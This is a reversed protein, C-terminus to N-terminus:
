DLKRKRYFYIAVSLCVLFLGIYIIRDLSESGTSPLTGGSSSGGTSSGTSSGSGTGTSTRSSRSSGNSTDDAGSGQTNPLGGQEDDSIKLTNILDYGDITREYGEVTAEDIKYVYAKGNADKIPLNEFKYRWNTARGVVKEAIKEDNQFLYVTITNPRLRAVDDNDEWTKQGSINKTILTNKVDMGTETPRYNPIVRNGSEDRLVEKVSYTYAKGSADYEILDKFTYRWNKEATTEAFVNNGDTDEYVKGNQYLQVKISEPRSQYLNEQDDWSKQGSVEITNLSNTILATSNDDFYEVNDTYNKLNDTMVEQVTYEYAKGDKDFELLGNFETAWGNAENLESIVEKGDADKYVEKDQYLQVKISEPRTQYANSQDDWEKTVVKKITQLTNTIVATTTNDEPDDVKNTYNKLNDTMVEEVTYKYAEGNADFEALETFKATWNNEENLEVIGTKGNPYTYDFGNQKLQVKISEPRVALKNSQDDWEKTVEKEILQLENKIAMGNEFSQYNKLYDTQIEKVSYNYAKGDPDVEPLGEFRYKWEGKEDATVLQTVEKGDPDEFAKDNQYLQVEIQTPRVQYSNDSDEWTKMGEVSTLRYTNTVTLHQANATYDPQVNTEEVTYTYLKGEKDKEPLNYFTYSWDNKAEELTIQYDEGQRNRIMEGNQLLQLTVDKRLDSCYGQDQWVKNVTIDTVSLTNTIQLSGDEVIYDPSLIDNPNIAIERVFYNMLVGNKNRAPLGTINLTWTGTDNVPQTIVFQGLGNDNLDTTVFPAANAAETGEAYAYLQFRIANPRTFFNDEQDDWTKHVEIEVKNVSNTLIGENEAVFDKDTLYVEEGESYHLNEKVGYIAENGDPTVTPLDTFRYDWRSATTNGTIEQTTKVTDAADVFVEKFPKFQGDAMKIMLELELYEPRLGYFNNTDNWHKTGTIEKTLLRNTLEKQDNKGEYGAVQTERIAYDITKGKADYRPLDSFTYRYQDANAPDKEMTATVAQGNKLVVQYEDQSDLRSVLTVVLNDPRIGYKNGNDEWIKTATFDRVVLTNKLNMSAQDNEQVVESTYNDSFAVEKVTYVYDNGNEDAKPLNTFQYTWQNKNEPNENSSTVDIPKGYEENNQLLQVKIPQRTAYQNEQDDWTKTGELDVTILTNKLNFTYHPFGDEVTLVKDISSDYGASGVFEETVTYEYKNGQVDTYPLDTRRAQWGNEATLEITEKIEAEAADATKGELTLILKAPLKINDTGIWEKEFYMNTKVRNTMQITPIVYDEDAPEETTNGLAIRGSEFVTFVQKGDVIYEQNAKTAVEEIQYQGPSLAGITLNGNADTLYTKEIEKSGLNILRFEINELNKSSLEKEDTLMQGTKQLKITGTVPFNSINAVLDGDDNVTVAGAVQEWGTIQDQEVVRYSYENGDVDKKPLNKFEYKFENGATAYVTDVPSYDQDNQTKRQLEITVGPYSVANETEWIKQGTLNITEGPFNKVALYTNGSDDERLEVGKSAADAEDGLIITGSSDIKIQIATAPTGFRSVTNSPSRSEYLWYTGRPILRVQAKGQDEGDGETIAQRIALPSRNADLLKFTAGNLAEGTEADLKRLSVNFNRASGTVWSGNGEVGTNSDGPATTTATGEIKITNKVKTNDGYGVVNVRYNIILPETIKLDEKFTITFGDLNSPSTDYELFYDVNRILERETDAVWNDDVQQEKAYYIKLSNTVLQTVQVGEEVDLTDTIKTNEYTLRNGNLVVSYDVHAVDTSSAAYGVGGKRNPTAAWSFSVKADNDDKIIKGDNGFTYETTATNLYYPQIEGTLETTIKMRVPHDITLQHDKNLTYVLEGDQFTLKGNEKFQETMDGNVEKSTDVVKRGSTDYKLAQFVVHSWLDATNLSQKSTAVQEKGNEDTSGAQLPDKIVLSKLTEGYANFDLTWEIKKDQFNGVGSKSEASWIRDPINGNSSSKGWDEGESSFLYATNTFDNGTKKNLPTTLLPEGEVTGFVETNFVYQTNHNIAVDHDINETFRIMVRQPDAQGRGTNKNESDILIIEYQNKDLSPISIDNKLAALLREEYQSQSLEGEYYAFSAPMFGEPLVDIVYSDKTIPNINSYVTIGFAVNKENYDISKTEKVINPFTDTKGSNIGMMEASNSIKFAYADSPRNPIDEKEVMLTYTITITGTIATKFQIKIQGDLEQVWSYDTGETLTNTGDTVSFADAKPIVMTSTIFDGNANIWGAKPIDMIYVPNNSNAPITLKQENMTITYSGLVNGNEDVKSTGQKQLWGSQKVTVTEEATIEKLRTDETLDKLTVNNVYKIDGASINQGADTTATTNFNAKFVGAFTEGDKRTITAKWGKLDNDNKQEDDWHVATVKVTYEDTNLKQGDGDIFEMQDLQAQTLTHTKPNKPLTDSLELGAVQNGETNAIVTWAIDKFIINGKNDVETNPLNGEKSLSMDKQLSPLEIESRTEDNIPIKILTDEDGYNGLANLYITATGYSDSTYILSESFVMTMYGDSSMTYFGITESRGNVIGKIPQPTATALFSVGNNNLKLTYFSGATVPNLDVLEAGEEAPLLGDLAWSFTIEQGDKNPIIEGDEDGNIQIETIITNGKVEELGVTMQHNDDSFMSKLEDISTLYFKSEINDWDHGAASPIATIVLDNVCKAYTENVIPGDLEKLKVIVFSVKKDERGDTNITYTDGSKTVTVGNVMSGDLPLATGITNLDLVYLPDQIDYELSNINEIMYVEVYTDADQHMTGTIDLSFTVEKIEHLVGKTTSSDPSHSFKGANIVTQAEALNGEIKQEKASDLNPLYRVNQMAFTSNYGETSHEGNLDIEELARSERSQNNETTEEPPSNSSQDTEIEDEVIEDSEEPSLTVSDDESVSSDNSQSSSPESEQRISTTTETASLENAIVNLPLSQLLITLTAFFTLFKSKKM